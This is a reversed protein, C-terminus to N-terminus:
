GIVEWQPIQLTQGSAADEVREFVARVRQGIAVREPAVNVPNGLVRIQPFDDLSVLIVAYPVRDRLLAPIAPLPPFREAGRELLGGEALFDVDMLGGPGTKIAVSTATERAREGHVRKRLDALYAWPPSGAKAVSIAWPAM